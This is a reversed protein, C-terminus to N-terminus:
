FDVWGPWMPDLSGAMRTSLPLQNLFSFLVFCSVFCFLVFFVFCFFFFFVIVFVFCFCFLVFCFCFLFCFLFGFCFWFLVFFVFNLLSSGHNYSKFYSPKQWHRLWQPPDLPCLAGRVAVFKCFIPFFQPMLIPFRRSFSPFDPFLPFIPFFLCPDKVKGGHCIPSVVGSTKADQQTM